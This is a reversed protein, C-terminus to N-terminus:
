KKRGLALLSGLGLLVLTAPEPVLAIDNGTGWTQSVTDYTYTLFTYSGLDGTLVVSDFVGAVATASSNKVLVVHATPAVTANVVLNATSGEGAPDLITFEVEVPSVSSTLNFELTGTAGRGSDRGGVRLSGMDITPADGTIALTGVGGRDGLTLHGDGGEGKLYTITGASINYVGDGGASDGLVLRSNDNGKRLELHGGTQNITGANSAGVRLWGPGNLIGGPLINLTAGEYVRMRTQITYGWNENSNLTCTDGIGTDSDKRIKVEVTGDPYTGMWNSPNSWLYPPGVVENFDVALASNAMILLSVVLVVLSLRKM